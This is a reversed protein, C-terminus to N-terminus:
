DRINESLTKQWERDHGMLTALRTTALLLNAKDDKEYYPLLTERYLLALALFAKGNHTLTGGLTCPFLETFYESVLINELMLELPPLPTASQLPIKHLSHLHQNDGEPRSLAKRLGPFCAELNGGPLQERAGGGHSYTDALKLLAEFDGEEVAKDAEGLFALLASLRETLPMKLQLINLGTDQLLLYAAAVGEEGKQCAIEQWGAPRNMEIERWKFEIPASRFIVLEAALPCSLSLSRQFSGGIDVPKRPYIACTNGLFEEGLEKQVRCLCDPQLFHCERQEGFDWAHKEAENEEEQLHSLLEERWDKPLQQYKGYTKGDVLVTWLRCCQAGCRGGDCIFDKLYDPELCLM